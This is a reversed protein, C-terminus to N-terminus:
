VQNYASNSNIGSSPLPVGNNIRQPYRRKVKGFSVTNTGPAEAYGWKAIYDDWYKLMAVAQRHIQTIPLNGSPDSLDLYAATQQVRDYWYARVTGVYTGTWEDTIKADDWGNEVADSPLWRSKFVTLQETTIVAM